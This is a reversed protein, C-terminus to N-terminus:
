LSIAVVSLLITIISVRLLGAAVQKATENQFASAIIACVLLIAAFGLSYEM